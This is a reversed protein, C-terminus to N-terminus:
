KSCGKISVPFSKLKFIQKLLNKRQFLFLCNSGLINLGVEVTSNNSERLYTIRTLKINDVIMNTQSLATCVTCITKINLYIVHEFLLWYWKRNGIMELNLAKFFNWFYYPSSKHKISKNESYTFHIETISNQCIVINLIIM